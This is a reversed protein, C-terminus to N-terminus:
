FFSDADSVSIRIFALQKGYAYALRSQEPLGGGGVVASSNRSVCVLSWASACCANSAVPCSEVLTLTSRRNDAALPRLWIQYNEFCMRQLLVFPVSKVIRKTTDRFYISPNLIKEM